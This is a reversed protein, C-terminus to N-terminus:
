FMLVCDFSLKRKSLAKISMTKLFFFDIKKFLFTYKLLV